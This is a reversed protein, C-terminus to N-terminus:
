APEEDDEDPTSDDDELREVLEDKKGSTPLDRRELEDRLERVTLDAYESEQNAPAQDEETGTAGADRGLTNVDGTNPQDALDVGEGDLQRPGASGSSDEGGADAQQLEASRGMMELYARDKDSLSKSLDIRKSM